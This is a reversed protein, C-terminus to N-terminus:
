PIKFYSTGLSAYFLLVAMGFGVGLRVFAYSLIGFHILIIAVILLGILISFFASSIPLFHM